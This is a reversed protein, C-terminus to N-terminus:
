IKLLKRIAAEIQDPRLKSASIEVTYRGDTGPKIRALPKGDQGSIEIAKSATNNSVVSGTLCRFVEKDPATNNSVVRTEAIGNAREILGEPDADLTQSLKTAWDSRIAIPTSFAAIVSSPLQAIKLTRSVHSVDLGVAEALRRMSPYLGQDLALKYHLGQEYPSLDARHRNEREMEIWLQQDSVDEVLSLVPLGLELCARHRRHGFVIEYAHEADQVPRVKIPQVNGGAQQIEAKLAEFDATTFSAALRNAYRSARVARPDLRRTPQADDAALMRSKANTM